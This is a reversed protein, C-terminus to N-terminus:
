TIIGTAKLQAIKEKVIKLAGQYDKAYVVTTIGNKNPWLDIHPMVEDIDPYRVCLCYYDSGMMVLFPLHGKHETNLQIETIEPTYGGLTYTYACDHDNNQTMYQSVFAEADNRHEYIALVRYESYEGITILYVTKM